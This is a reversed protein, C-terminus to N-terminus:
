TGRVWGGVGCGWGSGPFALATSAGTTKGHRHDDGARLEAVQGNIEVADAGDGGEISDCNTAAHIALEDVDSELFALKNVLAFNKRLDIRTGKLDLEFLSLTLEGLIFSLAPVGFNVKLSEFKQELFANDGLLLEIGLGRKHALEIAGNFRVLPRNVIGLQLETIGPDGCRDAAADAQAENVDAVDHM